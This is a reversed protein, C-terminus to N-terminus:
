IEQDLGQTTGPIREFNKGNSKEKQLKIPKVDPGSSPNVCLACIKKAVLKWKGKRAGRNGRHEWCLLGRAHSQDTFTPVM